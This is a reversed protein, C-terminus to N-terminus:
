SFMHNLSLDWRLKPSPPPTAPLRFYSVGLTAGNFKQVISVAIDADSFEVLARFAYDNMESQRQLAFVEGQTQLFTQVVTEVRATGSDAAQGFATIQVKGDSM